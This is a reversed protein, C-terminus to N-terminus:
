RVGTQCLFPGVNKFFVWHWTHKALCQWRAVLPWQLGNNFPLSPRILVAFSTSVTIIAMLTLKKKHYPPNAEISSQTKSSVLIWHNWLKVPHRKAHRICDIWMQRHLSLRSLSPPLNWAADNMNWWRADPSHLIKLNIRSLYHILPLLIHLLSPLGPAMIINSWIQYSGNVKYQADNKFLETRIRVSWDVCQIFIDSILYQM